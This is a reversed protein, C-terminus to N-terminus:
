HVSMLAQYLDFGLPSLESKLADVGTATTPIKPLSGVSLTEPDKRSLLVRKTSGHFIEVKSSLVHSFRTRNRRLELDSTAKIGVVTGDIEYRLLVPSLFTQDFQILPRELGPEDSKFEEGRIELVAMPSNGNTGISLRVRNKTDAPPAQRSDTENWVLDGASYIGSALLSKAIAESQASLELNGWLSAQSPCAVTLLFTKLVCKEKHRILTWSVPVALEGASFAKGVGSINVEFHLPGYWKLLYGLSQGEISITGKSQFPKESKLVNPQFRFIQGSQPVFSYGACSFLGAFFYASLKLNRKLGPMFSRRIPPIM